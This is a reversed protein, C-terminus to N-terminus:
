FMYNKFSDILASMCFTHLFKSEKLPIIFIQGISLCQWSYIQAALFALVHVVAAVDTWLLFSHRDRLHIYTFLSLLSAVLSRVTNIHARMETNHIFSESDHAGTGGCHAEPARCLSPAWLQDICVLRSESAPMCMRVHDSVSHVGWAVCPSKTRTMWLRPSAQNYVM